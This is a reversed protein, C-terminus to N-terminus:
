DELTYLNWGGTIKLFRFPELYLEEKPSFVDDLYSLDGLKVPNQYGDLDGIFIEKRFFVFLRGKGLKQCFTFHCLPCQNEQVFSGTFQHSTEILRLKAHVEGHSRCSQFGVFNWAWSAMQDLLVTSLFVFMSSCHDLVGLCIVLFMRQM